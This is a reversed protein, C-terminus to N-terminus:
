IQYYIKEWVLIPSFAQCWVSYSVKCFFSQVDNAFVRLHNVFYYAYTCPSLCLKKILYVTQLTLGHAALERIVKLVWNRLSKKSCNKEIALEM